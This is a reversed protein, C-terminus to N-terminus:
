KVLSFCKKRSIPKGTQECFALSISPARDFRDKLSMKIIMRNERKTNMLPWCTRPKLELTKDAKFRSIVCYVVSKSRRVIDDIESYSKGKEHNALILKKVERILCNHAKAERKSLFLEM